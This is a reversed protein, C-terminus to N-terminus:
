AKLVYVSRQGAMPAFRESIGLTSESGGLILVGDPRLIRAMRDLIRTKTENDFYILVNRCLIVDCPGLVAPDQLLNFPRFTVRKRINEHLIWRDGDKQFHKVLMQVPLGRQIEFQSYVGASAKKLM